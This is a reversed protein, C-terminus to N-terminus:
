KVTYRNLHLCNHRLLSFKTNTYLQYSTITTHNTPHVRTDTERTEEELGICTVAKTNQSGVRQQCRPPERSIHTGKHKNNRERKTHREEKVKNPTQNLRRKDAQEVV